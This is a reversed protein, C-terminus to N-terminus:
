EGAEAIKEKVRRHGAGAVFVPIGAIEAIKTAVEIIHILGSQIPILFDTGPITQIIELLAGDLYTFLILGAGIIEKYNNIERVFPLTFLKNTFKLFTVM